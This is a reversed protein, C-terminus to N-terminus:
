SIQVRGISHSFIGNYFSIREKILDNSFLVKIEPKISLLCKM